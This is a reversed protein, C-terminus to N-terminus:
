GFFYTLYACLTFYARCSMKSYNKKAFTVSKYSSKCKCSFDSKLLSTEARLTLKACTKM